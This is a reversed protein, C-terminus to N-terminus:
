PIGASQWVQLRPQLSEMSYRLKLWRWHWSEIETIKSALEKEVLWCELVTRFTGACLQMKYSSMRLSGMCNKSSTGLAQYPPQPQIERKNSFYVTELISMWPTNSKNCVGFHWNSVAMWTPRSILKKLIPHSKRQIEGAQGSPPLSAHQSLWYLEMFPHVHQPHYTKSTKIPIGTYKAIDLFITLQQQCIHSQALGIFIFDDLIHSTSPLHTTSYWHRNSHPRSNNSYPVHYQADWQYVITMIIYAMGNFVMDTRQTYQCLASHM